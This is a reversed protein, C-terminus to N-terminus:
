ANRIKEMLLSVEKELEPSKTKILSCLPTILDIFESKEIRISSEDNGNEYWFEILNSEIEFGHYERAIGNGNAVSELINCFEELPSVFLYSVFPQYKVDLYNYIKPLEM